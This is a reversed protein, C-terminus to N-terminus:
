EPKKSKLLKSPSKGYKKQFMRSFYNPDRFGVQYAIESVNLDTEKLLKQSEYLRIDRIFNTPTQGTIAKVKRYFQNKNLHMFEALTEVGFDPDSIEELLKEKIKSVFKHEKSVTALSDNDEKFFGAQFKEILIKRHRILNNLRILLEEKNFPKLLYSDAGSLLGDNKDAQTAKATLLIIPIHSTKANEKLQKTVQYGDMKPMIVDCLIIDPIVQIAKELGEQGDYAIHLNYQNRLLRAVYNAVDHNDEILLLIPLANNQEIPENQHENAILSPDVPIPLEVRQSNNVIPLLIKFESGVEVESKVSIEGNLMYILEKVFALGIGTGINLGSKLKQFRDFIFPLRSAEIGSGNDKVKIQLMPTEAVMEKKLHVIIKGGSSTFKVANSILNYLIHELKYKDFDMLLEQEESYFHLRINKISAMSYFSETIYQLFVVVDSQIYNVELLDAEMKSLDLMQNILRLMQDSNRKIIAKENDYDEIFELNGKIITLPTRFEHTINTYLKTKLKDVEKLKEAALNEQARLLKTKELDFQVQQKELVINKRRYALGLSFIIVELITGIQFPVTSYDVERIRAIITFVAGIGMLIIGAIIFYSSKKKTKQLAVCFSFIFLVFIIANGVTVIDSINSNFNTALMLGVDAFFAFLNVWLLIQLLKNWRPLLQELQLFFRLFYLYGFVVLYTSTKGLYAYKPFNPILLFNILDVLLGSNYSSYLVIGLIYISYFLYTRDKANFFYLFLNYILMMLMFGIFLGQKLRKNKLQNFFYNSSYLKLDFKSIANKRDSKAKFYITTTEALPINLQFLNAKLIPAFSREKTPVFQGTRGKQITGNKAIAYVSVDTLSIPFEVVWNTALNSTPKLHEIEVRGWYTKNPIIQDKWTPYKAFSKSPVDEFSLPQDHEPLLEIKELINIPKGDEMIQVTQGFLAHSFCTLFIVLSLFPPYCM